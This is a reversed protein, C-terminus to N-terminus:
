YNCKNDQQSCVPSATVLYSLMRFNWCCQAFISLLASRPCLEVTFRGWSNKQNHHGYYNSNILQIHSGYRLICHGLNSTRVSSALDTRLFRPSLIELYSVLLGTLLYNIIHFFRFYELCEGVIKRCNEM